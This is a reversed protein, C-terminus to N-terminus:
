REVIGKPLEFIYQEDESDVFDPFTTDIVYSDPKEAIIHCRLAGECPLQVEYEASIIPLKDVFFHRKGEIDTFAFRVFTPYGSDDTIDTIDVRVDALTDNM